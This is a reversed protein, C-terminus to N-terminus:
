RNRLTKFFDKLMRPSKEELVGSLVEVHHTFDIHFLNTKSVHAGNKYDRAGYILRKIRSQIIAGACMPCPELTVYMDANELRWSGIEKAAQKIASIEAHALPDQLSERQNHASAIIKDDLVIIAGVPVEKKNMALRAEELALGMYYVDDPM